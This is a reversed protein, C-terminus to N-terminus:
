RVLNVLNVSNVVGGVVEMEEVGGVVRDQWGAKVVKVVKVM